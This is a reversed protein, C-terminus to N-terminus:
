LAGLRTFISMVIFLSVLGFGVMRISTQVGDNISSEMHEEGGKKRKSYFVKEYGLELLFTTVIVLSM